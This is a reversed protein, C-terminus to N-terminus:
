ILPCDSPSHSLSSFSFFIITFFTMQCEKKNVPRSRFYLSIFFLPAFVISNGFDVLSIALLYISDIHLSFPITQTVHYTYGLLLLLLLLSALLALSGLSTESISFSYVYCCHEFYKQKKKYRAKGIFWSSCFPTQTLFQTIRKRQSNRESSEKQLEFEFRLPFSKRKGNKASERHIYAVCEIERAVCHCM